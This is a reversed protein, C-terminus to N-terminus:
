SRFTLKSLMNEAGNRIYEGDVGLAMLRYGMKHVEDVREANFCFIAALKNHDRTRSALDRIIGITAEGFPDPLASNAISMSLDSPGVLIGDIGDVGLIAEVNAVGQRTEIMALALTNHDATTLYEAISDCGLVHVAQSPGHSREGVPLYKMHSSFALADEVTNIMPAIVAHAGFDLARSAFEFRGVPIRVIAPKGSSAIAAIGAVIDGDDHLGHQM